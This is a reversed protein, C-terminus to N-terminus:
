YASPNFYERLLGIDETSKLLEFLKLVQIMESM